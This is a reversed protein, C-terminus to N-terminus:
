EELKSWCSRSTQGNSAWNVSNRELTSVHAGWGMASEARWKFPCPASRHCSKSVDKQRVADSDFVESSDSHADILVLQVDRNLALNQIAWYFTGAHSDEIYVPLNAAAAACTVM